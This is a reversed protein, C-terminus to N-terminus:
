LSQDYPLRWITNTIHAISSILEKPLYTKLSYFLYSMKFNHNDINKKAEEFTENALNKYTSGEIKKAGRLLLLETAEVDGTLAAIQLSNVMHKEAIEKESFRSIWNVDAGLNLLTKALNLRNSKASDGRIRKYELKNFNSINACDVYVTNFLHHLALSNIHISVDTYCLKSAREYDQESIARFLPLIEFVIPDIEEYYPLIETQKKIQAKSDITDYNILQNNNPSLLSLM